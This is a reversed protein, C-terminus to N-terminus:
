GLFRKFRKIKLYLNREPSLKILNRALKCPNRDFVHLLFMYILYLLFPNFVAIQPFGLCDQIRSEPNWTISELDKETSSPNQIGVTMPIGSEQLQIGSELAWSELNWLCFNGPNRFRSERVHPSPNFVGVPQFCVTRQKCVDSLIHIRSPGYCIWMRPRLSVRVRSSRFRTRRVFRQAM